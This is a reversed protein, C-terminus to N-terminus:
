LQNNIVRQTRAAVTFSPCVSVRQGQRWYDSMGLLSYVLLNVTLGMLLGGGQVDQLRTKVLGVRSEPKPFNGHANDVGDM